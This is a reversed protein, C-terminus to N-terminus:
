KIIRLNNLLRNARSSSASFKLKKKFRNKELKERKRKKKQNKKMRKKEVLILGSKSSSRNAKSSNSSSTRSTSPVVQTQSQQSESSESNLKGVTYIGLIGIIASTIAIHRKFVSPNRKAFYWIGFVGGLFMAPMTIPALLIILVVTMIALIINFKSNNKWKKM